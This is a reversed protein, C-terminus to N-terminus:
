SFVKVNDVRCFESVAGATCEFRIRLNPNNSASSPLSFEKLIYAANNASSKGTQELIVWTNGDYWKFQFEDASDLGVLKRAYSIKVNSYGVTSIQRELISAPTTTSMPKSEIYYVGQYPNTSSIKWVNAGSVASTTWGSLTGSEFTDEFIVGPTTQNTENGPESANVYAPVNFGLGTLENIYNALLKYNEIRQEISLGSIGDDEFAELHVSTLLMNNTKVVAPLGAVNGTYSTLVEGSAPLNVQTNRWGQTPGGYYIANFGNSLATLAYAPNSDYDAIDTISGEVTPFRDLMDPHNYYSGQWYYDNAAYYWGACTGLYNGNLNDLYNLIKSKGTSGLSRQQYYADGGPQVYLKVNPFNALNCNTKIDNATLFIYNVRSDQLDWWNFFQTMWSKSLTGVGGFGTDGYIVINTSSTIPCTAPKPAASVLVLVFVIFILGLCFVLSKKM